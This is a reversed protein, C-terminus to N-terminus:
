KTHKRETHADDKAAVSAFPQVFFMELISVSMSMINEMFMSSLVGQLIKADMRRQGDLITNRM